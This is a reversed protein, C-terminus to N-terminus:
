DEEEDEGAKGGGYRDRLEVEIDAPSYVCGLLHIVADLMEDVSAHREELWGGDIKDEVSWDVSYSFPEDQIIIIM